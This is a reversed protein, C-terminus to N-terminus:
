PSATGPSSSHFCFASPQLDCISPHRLSHPGHSRPLLWSLLFHFTTPEKISLLLFLFSALLLVFFPNETGLGLPYVLLMPYCAVIWAAIVLQGKM